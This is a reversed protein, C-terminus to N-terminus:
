GGEFAKPTESRIKKEEKELNKVMQKRVTPDLRMKEMEEELEKRRQNREAIHVFNKTMHGDLYIRMKEAKEAAVKSRSM